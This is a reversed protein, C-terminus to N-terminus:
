CSQQVGEAVLLLGPYNVGPCFAPQVARSVTTPILPLRHMGCLARCLERLLSELDHCGCYLAYLLNRCCVPVRPLVGAKFWQNQQAVFFVSASPLDSLRRLCSMRDCGRRM